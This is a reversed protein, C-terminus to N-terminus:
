ATAEMTWAARKTRVVMSRVRKFAESGPTLKMAIAAKHRELETRLKQSERVARSGLQEATTEAAIFADLAAEYRIIAADMMGRMELTGARSRLFHRAREVVSASQAGPASALTLMPTISARAAERVLALPEVADLAGLAAEHHAIIDGARSRLTKAAEADVADAEAALLIAHDAASIVYRLRHTNM